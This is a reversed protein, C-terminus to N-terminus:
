PYDRWCLVWIAWYGVAVIAHLLLKSPILTRHADVKSCVLQHQYIISTHFEKRFIAITNLRNKLKRVLWMRAHPDFDSKLECQCTYLSPISISM